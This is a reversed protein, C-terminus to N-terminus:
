GCVRDNFDGRVAATEQLQGHQGARAKMEESSDVSDVNAAALANGEQDSPSDHLERCSTAKGM